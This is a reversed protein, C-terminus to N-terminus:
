DQFCIRLVIERVLVARFGVSVFMFSMREPEDPKM